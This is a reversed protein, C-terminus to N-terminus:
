DFLEVFQIFECNNFSLLYTEVPSAAQEDTDYVKVVKDEECVFAACIEPLKM